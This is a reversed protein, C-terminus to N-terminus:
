LDEEKRILKLITMLDRFSTLLVVIIDVLKFSVICTFEVFIRNGSFQSLVDLHYHDVKKVYRSIFGYVNAQMAWLSGLLCGNLMPDDVSFHIVSDLLLKFKRIMQRLKPRSVKEQTKEVRKKKKVRKVKIKPKEDLEMSDEIVKQEVTKTKVVVEEKKVTVEDKMKDASLEANKELEKMMPNLDMKYKFFLYKVQVFRSEDQFVVRIKIKVFILLIFLCLLFLLFYGIWRMVTTGKIEIKVRIIYFINM